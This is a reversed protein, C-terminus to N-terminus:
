PQETAAIQVPAAVTPASSSADQAGGREGRDPLAIALGAVVVVGAAVILSIGKRMVSRWSIVRGLAGFYARFRAAALRVILQPRAAMQSRRPFSPLLAFPLGCSS